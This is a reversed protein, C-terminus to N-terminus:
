RIIIQQLAELLAYASTPKDLKRASALAPENALDAASYATAIVFPISREELAVAVPTVRERGLNVDLVAAHPTEDSMIALAARVSSAPGLVRYGAETLISELEMALLFEDEVVLIFRPTRGAFGRPDADESMM